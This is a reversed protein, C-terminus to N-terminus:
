DLELLTLFSEMRQRSLQITDVVGRRDIRFCIEHPLRSPLWFIMLVDVFHQVPRSIREFTVLGQLSIRRRQYHVPFVIVGSRITCYRRTKVASDNRM